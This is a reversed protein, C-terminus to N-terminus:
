VNLSAISDLVQNIEFVLINTALVKNDASRIDDLCRAPISLLKKKLEDGIAFLNKEVEAKRVLTGQLEELEMKERAIQLVAQRRIAEQYTLAPHIKIATLLEDYTYDKEQLDNLNGDIKNECLLKKDLKDAVAKASLGRQPKPNEHVFGWEKTAVSAIIKPVRKRKGGIVRYVYVVGKKIKGDDIAGRVASEDVQLQKAYARLSIKIENMM